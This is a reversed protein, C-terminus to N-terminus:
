GEPHANKKRERNVALAAFRSVTVNLMTEDCLVFENWNSPSFSM